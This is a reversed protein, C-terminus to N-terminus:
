INACPKEGRPDLSPIGRWRLTGVGPVHSALEQASPEGSPRPSPAAKPVAQAEKKRPNLERNNFVPLFM